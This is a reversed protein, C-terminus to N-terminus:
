CEDDCVSRFHTVTRRQHSKILFNFFVVASSRSDDSPEFRSRPECQRNRSCRVVHHHSACLGLRLRTKMNFYNFRNIAGFTLANRTSNSLRVVVVVVLLFFIIFATFIDPPHLSVSPKIILALPAPLPQNASSPLSTICFCHCRRRIVIVIIIARNFLLCLFVFNSAFIILKFSDDNYNLSFSLSLSLSSSLLNHLAVRLLLHIV